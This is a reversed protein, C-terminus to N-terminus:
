TRLWRNFGFKSYMFEIINTTTDVFHHFVGECVKKFWNRIMVQTVSARNKDINEAMRISLTPQRKLFASMWWQGPRNNKFKTERGAKNLYMQVSDKLESETLPFGRKSVDIVWATIEKEETATLETPLGAFVYKGACRRHLTTVKVGYKKAAGRITSKKARVDAVAAEM